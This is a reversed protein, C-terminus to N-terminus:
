LTVATVRYYITGNTVTLDAFTTASVSAITVFPGGSIV